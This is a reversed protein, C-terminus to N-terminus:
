PARIEILNGWNENSAHPEELLNNVWVIMNPHFWINKKVMSLCISRLIFKKFFLKSSPSSEIRGRWLM